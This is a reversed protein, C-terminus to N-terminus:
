LIQWKKYKYRVWNKKDSKKAMNELMHAHDNFPGIEHTMDMQGYAWRDAHILMGGM